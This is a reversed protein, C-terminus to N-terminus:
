APEDDLWAMRSRWYPRDILFPLSFMFYIHRLILVLCSLFLVLLSSFPIRTGPIYRNHIIHGQHANQNAWSWIPVFYYIHRVDTRNPDPVYVWEDRIYIYIYIHFLTLLLSRFLFDVWVRVYRSADPTAPFRCSNTRPLAPSALPPSPKPENKKGVKTEVSFRKQKGM